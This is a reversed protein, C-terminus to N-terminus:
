RSQERRFLHLLYTRLTKLSDTESQKFLPLAGENGFAGKMEIAILRIKDDRLRPVRHDNIEAWGAIAPHVARSGHRRDYVAAVSRTIRRYGLIL